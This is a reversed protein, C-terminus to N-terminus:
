QYGKFDGVNFRTIFEQGKRSVESKFMYRAAGKCFPCQRGTNKLFRMYTAVQTPYLSELLSKLDGEVLSQFKSLDEPSM